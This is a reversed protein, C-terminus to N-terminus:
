RKIAFDRFYRCRFAQVTIFSFLAMLTSSSLFYSDAFFSLGVYSPTHLLSLSSIFFFFIQRCSLSFSFTDNYRFFPRCYIFLLFIHLFRKQMSFFFFDFDTDAEDFRMPMSTISFGTAYHLFVLTIFRMFLFHQPSFLAYRTVIMVHFIHSRMADPPLAAIFDFREIFDFSIIFYRYIARM